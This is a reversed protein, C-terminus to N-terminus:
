VNYYIIEGCKAFKNEASNDSQARIPTNSVTPYTLHTPRAKKTDIQNLNYNSYVKCNKANFENSSSQIRFLKKTTPKSASTYNTLCNKREKLKKVIKNAIPKMVYTCFNKCSISITQDNLTQHEQNSIKNESNSVLSGSLGINSPTPTFQNSYQFSNKETLDVNGSNMDNSEDFEISTEFLYNDFQSDNESAFSSKYAPPSSSPCNRSPELFYNELDSDTIRFSSEEGVFCTNMEDWETAEYQSRSSKSNKVKQFDM